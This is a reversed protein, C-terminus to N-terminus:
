TAREVMEALSRVLGRSLLAHPVIVPLHGRSSKVVAYLAGGMDNEGQTGRDPAIPKVEAPPIEEPDRVRDVCLALKAGDREVVVLKRELIPEVHEVGLRAALDIICISEGFLEFFSSLYSPGGPLPQTATQLIVQRVDLLAVALELSGVGLPLIMLSGRSARARASDLAQGVVAMLEEARVPKVLHATAGRSMCAEARVKESSIIVVPIPELEPTAKLHALVQEGDMEPMSLDLLIAAPRLRTCLSLGDRGNSATSVAYHSSLVSRTFALIAESDDIVVIHPQAM